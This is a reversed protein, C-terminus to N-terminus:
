DSTDRAGVEVRFALPQSVAQSVVPDRDKGHTLDIGCNSVAM